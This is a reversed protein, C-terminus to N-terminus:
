PAAHSQLFKEGARRRPMPFNVDGLPDKLSDVVAQRQAADTISQFYQSFAAEDQMLWQYSAYGLGAYRGNNFRPAETFVFDMAARPNKEALSQAYARYADPDHYPQAAQERLWTRQLEADANALRNAVSSFAGKRQADTELSNFWALVGEAGGQQMAAMSLTAAVTRFLPEDAKVVSLAYTTAAKLDRNAYGQVVRTLANDLEKDSLTENANLWLVAAEPDLAGWQEVVRNIADDYWDKGTGNKQILQVAMKPDRHGVTEWFLMWEMGHRRGTKFMAAFADLVGKLEEESTLGAILKEFATRREVPNTMLLVAECQAAVTKEAFVSDPASAGSASDKMPGATAKALSDKAKPDASQASKGPVASAEPPRSFWFVAAFIAIVAVLSVALKASM